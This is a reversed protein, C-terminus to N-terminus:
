ELPMIWEKKECDTVASYHDATPKENSVELQSIHGSLEIVPLLSLWVPPWTTARHGVPRPNCM